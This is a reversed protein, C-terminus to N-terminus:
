VIMGSYILAISSEGLFLMRACVTYSFVLCLSTNVMAPLGVVCM